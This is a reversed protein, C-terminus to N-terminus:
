RPCGGSVRVIGALDRHQDPQAFGTRLLEAIAEAQDYGHEFLLRAGPNLHAPAHTLIHRIADLGDVGCALALAPEFRLDGSDLHPDGAAVYPPNGVILDFCQNELAAFWDSKLFRVRAGLRAANGQAVALAAPSIDVATLDAHPLELALSIAVCGSGAGLDLIRPAKIGAVAEKGLDVLLETEPRPILVAPSVAFDRGYFERTGTLYAVPEGAARRAVLADFREASEGPLADDRHAELWAPSCGLVHRLLLRAESIPILQRARALAAAISM